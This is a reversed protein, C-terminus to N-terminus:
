AHQGALETKIMEVMKQFDEARLRRYARAISEPGSGRYGFERVSRRRGLKPVEDPHFHSIWMLMYYNSKGM